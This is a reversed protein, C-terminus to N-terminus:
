ERSFFMYTKNSLLDDEDAVRKVGLLLDCSSVDDQVKAGAEEYQSDPFIRLVFCPFHIAAGNKARVSSFHDSVKPVASSHNPQRGQVRPDTRRRPGADVCSSTGM